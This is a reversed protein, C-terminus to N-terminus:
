RKQDSLGQGVREAHEAQEIADIRRNHEVAKRRTHASLLVPAAGLGCVLAFAFVLFGATPADLMVFLTVVVALTLGVVLVLILRARWGM